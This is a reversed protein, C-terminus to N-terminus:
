RPDISIAAIEEWITERGLRQWTKRRRTVQLRRIGPRQVSAGGARGSRGLIQNRIPHRWRWPEVRRPMRRTSSRRSRPATTRRAGSDGKPPASTFTKPQSPVGVVSWVRGSPAARDSSPSASHRRAHCSRAHIVRRTARRGCATNDPRALRSRRCPGSRRLSELVRLKDSRMLVGEAENFQHRPASDICVRIGIPGFAACLRQRPETEAKGFSANNILTVFSGFNDHNRIRQLSRWDAPRANEWGGQDGGAPASRSQPATHGAARTAAARDRGDRDGITRELSQLSEPIAIPAGLELRNTGPKGYPTGSVTDAYSNGSGDLTCWSRCAGCPLQYAGLRAGHQAPLGNVTGVRGDLRNFENNAGSNSYGIGGNDNMFFMLTHTIGAQLHDKMRRTLGTSLAM